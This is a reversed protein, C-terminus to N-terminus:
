HVRETKQYVNQREFANKRYMPFQEFFIRMKSLRGYLGEPEWLVFVM